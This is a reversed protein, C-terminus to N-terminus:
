NRKVDITEYAEAGAILVKGHENAVFILVRGTEAVPKVDYVAVGGGPFVDGAKVEDFRILM